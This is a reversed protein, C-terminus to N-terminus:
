RSEECELARCVLADPTHVDPCPAPAAAAAVAAAIALIM